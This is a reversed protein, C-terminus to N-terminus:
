LNDKPNILQSQSHLACRFSSVSLNLLLTLQMLPIRPIFVDEGKFKGIIIAAEILNKM